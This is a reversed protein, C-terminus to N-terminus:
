RGHGDLIPPRPAWRAATADAPTARKDTEGRREGDKRQADRQALCQV